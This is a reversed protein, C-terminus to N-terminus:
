LDQGEQPQSTGYASRHECQFPHLHNRVLASPFQATFWFHFPLNFFYFRTLLSQGHPSDSVMWVLFQFGFTMM